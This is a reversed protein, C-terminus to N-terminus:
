VIMQMSGAALQTVYFPVVQSCHAKILFYSNKLHKYSITPMLQESPTQSITSPIYTSKSERNQESIVQKIVEGKNM